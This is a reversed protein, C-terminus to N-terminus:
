EAPSTTDVPVTDPTAPATEGGPVTLAPPPPLTQANQGSSGGGCGAVAFGLVLLSTLLAFPRM